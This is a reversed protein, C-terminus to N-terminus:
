ASPTNMSRILSQLVNRAVGRYPGIISAQDAHTRPTIARAAAFLHQRGGMDRYRNRLFAVYDDDSSGIWGAPPALPGRGGPQTELRSFDIVGYHIHPDVGNM